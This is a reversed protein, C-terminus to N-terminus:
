MPLLDPSPGEGGEFPVIHVSASTCVDGIPHYPFSIWFTRSPSHQSNSKHFYKPEQEYPVYNGKLRICLIGNAFHM